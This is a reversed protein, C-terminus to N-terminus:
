AAGELISRIEDLLMGVEADGLDGQEARSLLDWTSASTHEVLLDRLDAAFAGLVAGRAHREHEITSLIARPSTMARLPRGPPM